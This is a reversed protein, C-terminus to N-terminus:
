STGPSDLASTGRARRGRSRHAPDTLFCLALMALAAGRTLVSSGSGSLLADVVLLLEMVAAVAVASRSSTGRACSRILMACASLAVAIVVVGIAISIWLRGTVSETPEDLPAFAEVSNFVFTFVAVVLAQAALVFATAAQLLRYRIPM